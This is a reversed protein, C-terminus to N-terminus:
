ATLHGGHALYDAYSGNLQIQQAAGGDTRIEITFQDTKANATLTVHDSTEALHQVDAWSKLSVSAAGIRFGNLVISDGDSFNLDLIKDTAGKAVDAIDFVFKDAGSGGWLMDNGAGGVLTDNGKGGRLIDNGEHGYLITDKATTSSLTDAAATGHLVSEEVAAPKAPVIRVATEAAQYAILGNNIQIQQTAGSDTKITLTLQDTKANGTVAISGSSEALHVLDAWSQLTVGGSGGLKFGDLVISDGEGFNLDLIKDVAGKGLTVAEFVFKDAGSGGRLIDNGAGGYLTDNGKDGMLTDDGGHGYLISGGAVAALKESGDTGKVITPAGHLVTEGGNMGVIYNNTHSEGTNSSLSLANSQNGSVAVDSSDFVRIQTKYAAANTSVAINNEIVVGAGGEVLIGNPYDSSIFNNKIVVNEYPIGIENGLFIGQAGTGDGRTVTNDHIYINSSATTTGRTFFQIFDAHDGAQSHFNSATNNAIEVNRVAAFNTADIRLDSYENGIVKLNDINTFLTGRTLDHVYNDKVLINASDIAYLGRSSDSFTGDVGAFENKTFTVGNSERVTVANGYMVGTPQFRLGEFSVDHADKVVLTMTPQEGQKAVISLSGTKGANSVLVSGYDGGKLVITTDGSYSALAKKLEAANSVEITKGNATTM